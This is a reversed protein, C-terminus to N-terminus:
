LLRNIWKKKLYQVTNNINNRYFMIWISCNGSGCIIYKCKSMIITIALYNKSFELINNRMKKDVTSCTKNMHRIEDNFIIHNEPFQQKMFNIFETEDSQILFKVNANKALIQQTFTLYDNYSSLSTETIKDNGRYFLVCINDYDINYKNEINNIIIKVSVSPTFYKKILPNLDKFQLTSYDNYQYTHVYDINFKPKLITIKNYNEFYENTIDVNTDTKYWHFSKSTDVIDPLYKNENFYKVINHLRVSCCSFFGFNHSIVLKKKKIRKELIDIKINNTKELINYIYNLNKLINNM